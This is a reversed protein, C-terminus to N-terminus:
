EITFVNTLNIPFNIPENISPYAVNEHKIYDNKSPIYYETNINNININSNCWEDNGVVSYENYLKRLTIIKPTDWATEFNELDYYEVIRHNGREDGFIDILTLKNYKFEPLSNLANLYISKQEDTTLLEPINGNRILMCKDPSNYEIYNFYLGEPPIIKRSEMISQIFKSLGWINYATDMEFRELLEKTKILINNPKIIYMASRTNYEKLQKTMSTIGGIDWAIYNNCNLTKYEMDKTNHNFIQIKDLTPHVTEDKYNTKTNYIDYQYVIRKSKNLHIFGHYGFTHGHELKSIRPYTTSLLELKEYLSLKNIDLCKSARIIRPRKVRNRGIVEDVLNYYHINKPDKSLEVLMNEYNKDKIKNLGYITNKSEPVHGIWRNINQQSYNYCIYDWTPTLCGYKYLFSSMVGM